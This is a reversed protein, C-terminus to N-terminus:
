GGNRDLARRIALVCDDVIEGCRVVVQVVPRPRFILVFAGVATVLLAVGYLMWRELRSAAGAICPQQARQYPIGLLELKQWLVAAHLSFFVGQIPDSM